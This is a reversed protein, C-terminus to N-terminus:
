LKIKYNNLKNMKEISTKLVILNNKLDADKKKRYENDENFDVGLHVSYHNPVYYNIHGTKNSRFCFQSDECGYGKLSEDFGGIKNLLNRNWLAVGYILGSNPMFVKLDKNYIGKDLLCYIGSVGSNKVNENYFILDKLWNQTVTIDNGLTVIYDGTALKFLKNFGASVGKNTPEKIHVNAVTIGYDIIRKDKSGNDLILLEVDKNDIGTKSLLDNICFKTLQYRDITLLCLSIKAM